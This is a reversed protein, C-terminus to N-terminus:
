KKQNNIPRIAFDQSVPPTYWSDAFLIRPWLKLPNHALEYGIQLVGALALRLPNPYLPPNNTLGTPPPVDPPEVFTGFVRDWLMWGFNGLNILNHERKASHHIYHYNGIGFFASLRRLWRNHQMQAYYAECHSYIGLSHNFLRLILAEVIMPEPNFLQTSLGVLLQLPVAVLLFLPAAVFVPQTTPMMLHETMHHSRHLLLWPLRYSHSIRHLGYFALDALLLSLLLPLPRPLTILTPIHKLASQCWVTIRYVLQWGDSFQGGSLQYLWGIVFLMVLLILVQIGNLAFMLAFERLSYPKGTAREFHTYSRFTVIANQVMVFALLPLFIWFFLQSQLPYQQEIHALAQLALAYGSNGDDVFGPGVMINHHFVADVTVTLAYGIAFLLMIPLMLWRWRESIEPIEATLLRPLRM